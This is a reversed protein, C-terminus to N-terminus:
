VVGGSSGSFLGPWSVCNNKVVHIELCLVWGVVNSKQGLSCHSLSYTSYVTFNTAINQCYCYSVLVYGLIAINPIYSLLSDEKGNSCFPSLSNKSYSKLFNTM